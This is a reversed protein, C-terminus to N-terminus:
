QYATLHQQHEPLAADAQEEVDEQTELMAVAEVPVVVMQPDKTQNGLVVLVVALAAVFLPTQAFLPADRPTTILVLAKHSHAPHRAFVDTIGHITLRIEM